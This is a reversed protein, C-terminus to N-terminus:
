PLVTTCPDHGHLVHNVVTTSVHLGPTCNITFSLTVLLPLPQPLNATRVYLARLEIRAGSFLVCSFHRFHKLLFIYDLTQM